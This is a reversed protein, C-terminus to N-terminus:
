ESEPAVAIAPAGRGGSREAASGEGTVRFYSVADRLQDAQASLEEAMSAMEESSSANQQVVGDLERMAKTIQDTRDKQEANGMAIEKVLEASRQINPVVQEILTGAEEAVQVSAESREIIEAAAKQSREALKRVEAAVVAFGKGSEGARAAEIAANLALLNTNRAIEEIVTIREAIDRMAEVTQQVAERGRESNQAAGKSIKETERANDSNRQIQTSMEEVSSTVEEASAAQESAGQSITQSTDSLERSGSTINDVGGQIETVIRRLEENMQNMSQALEGVEDRSRIDLSEGRIEGGAVRTMAESVRLIPRAIYSGMTLGLAVDVLLIVVLAILLITVISSLSAYVEEDYAAVGVIWDMREVYELYDTRARGDDHAIRGEQAEIADSYIPDEAVNEGALEPHVLMNGEGDLLYAFGSEGVEVARITDRLYGINSQPIGVYLVAIVDGEEGRVPKYESIYWDDVVFARGEYQEGGMVTRYVQSDAPIYTGTAREGDQTRVSTSVRLIGGSIPQFITVTAGTLETILDVIETAGTVLQDGVYLAPVDVTSTEGTVQNRASIERTEEEDERASDEVFHSAVELYQRVADQNTRYSVNAMGRILNAITRSEQDVMETITDSVTVYIVGSLVLVLLLTSLFVASFLKPRLRM